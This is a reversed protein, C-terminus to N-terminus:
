GPGNNTVGEAEAQEMEWKIQALVRDWPDRVKWQHAGQHGAERYCRSSKGRDARHETCRPGPTYPIHLAGGM